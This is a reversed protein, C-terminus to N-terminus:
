TYPKMFPADYQAHFWTTTTSISGMHDRSYQINSFGQLHGNLFCFLLLSLLLLLFLSFTSLCVKQRGCEFHVFGFTQSGTSDTPLLKLSEALAQTSPCHATTNLLFVQWLWELTFCFGGFNGCHFTTREFAWQTGNVPIYQCSIAYFQIVFGYTHKRLKLFDTFIFLQEIEM